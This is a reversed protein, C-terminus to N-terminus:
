FLGLELKNKMLSMQILLIKWTVPIIDLLVQPYNEDKKLFLVSQSMVALCTYNSDVKPIEDNRFDTAVQDYSSIKTKLFKKNYITNKYEKKISNSVKSWIDNYTELLQDDEIFLVDM